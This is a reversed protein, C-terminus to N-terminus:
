RAEEGKRHQPCACPPLVTSMPAPQDTYSRTVTVTTRPATVVGEQTVTYVKITM